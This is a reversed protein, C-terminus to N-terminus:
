DGLHDWRRLQGGVCIRQRHGAWRSRRRGADQDRSQRLPHNLHIENDAETGAGMDYTVLFFVLAAIGAGALALSGGIFFRRRKARQLFARRAEAENVPAYSDGTQGLSDRLLKEIDTM